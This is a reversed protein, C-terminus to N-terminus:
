ETPIDAPGFDCNATVYSNLAEAAAKDDGSLQDELEAMAEEDQLDDADLDEISSLTLEFGERAEESMDAPTGVEAMDEAFTKLSAVIAEAQEQESAEPDIDGMAELFGQTYAECFDTRSADSPADTAAGGGDGGCGALLLALAALAGATTTTRTRRM